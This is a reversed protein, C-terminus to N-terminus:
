NALKLEAKTHAATSSVSPSPMESPTIFQGELLAMVVYLLPAIITHGFSAFTVLGVLFMGIEMTAAGIYPIFNLVFGLVGWAVPDPLGVAAAIAGAGVGVGLNILAVVGFYGALNREIDGVIRLVRLRAEREHFAGTFASRLRKRGLLMFFLAVFFILIQGLAPTVVSVAQQAIAVLDVNFGQGTDSPLLRNRLDRLFSLPEQLLQLKQQIDRSIDPAKNIWDIAPASVLATILYFAAVVLFWLAFANALPPIKMADARQSLPALLMAVVFAATTPLVIPRALSLAVFFLIVFIGITAMQATSRWAARLATVPQPDIVELAARRSAGRGNRPSKAIKGGAQSNRIDMGSCRRMPPITASQGAGAGRRRGMTM